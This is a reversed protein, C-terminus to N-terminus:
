LYGRAKPFSKVTMFSESLNFLSEADVDRAVSGGDSRGLASAGESRGLASGGDSRGLASAGESHGLASAGLRPHSPDGRQMQMQMQMARRRTWRNWEFAVLVIVVASAIICWLPIDHSEENWFYIMVVTAVAITAGVLMLVRGYVDTEFIGM